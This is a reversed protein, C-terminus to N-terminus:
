LGVRQTREASGTARRLILGLRDFSGQIGDMEPKAFFADLEPWIKVAQDLTPDTGEVYLGAKIMVESQEYAGLFKRTESIMANQAESAADPLCRSVSRGVDIAPFRGREAIDRSLVIHGDLVGRLIDAVPEDMDSGAVLVSFVATINGQDPAGPGARECLATIMPTVSPPYGRLAPAEGSAVAIERHAEAFRTVSDALFLVNKGANRFHEAVSMAAWACRRRTLASQDSTAAVVVARKMGEPGLVRTVFENVERGREGILGVVVVDAQMHTALQALLRSKGVGSGAFLGIRQGEAIPLITNLIALGTKMRGGLARRNAARPAPNMLDHTEAGSALPKGDLPYGYPDIVRGIWRACPSFDPTGQLVVRDGIAVGDPTTDPLMNVLDNFIQLVEGALQNGSKRHLTMHDGIRADNTIGSVQIVGGSIGAVRGLPRVLTMKDLQNRLANLDQHM